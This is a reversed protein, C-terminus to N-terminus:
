LLYVILVFAPADANHAINKPLFTHCASLYSLFLIPSISHPFLNLLYLQVTCYSYPYRDVLCSLPALRALPLTLSHLDRRAALKTLALSILLAFLSSHPHTPIEIEIEM